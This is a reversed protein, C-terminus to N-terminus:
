AVLVRLVQGITGRLSFLFIKIIGDLLIKLFVVFVCVQVASMLKSIFSEHASSPSALVSGDNDATVSSMILAIIALARLAAAAAEFMAVPPFLFCLFASTPSFALALFVLFGRAAAAAAAETVVAAEVVVAEETAVDASVGRADKKV